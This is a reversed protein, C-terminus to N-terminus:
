LPIDDPNINENRKFPDENDYLAHINIYTNEYAHKIEPTLPEKPDPVVSYTVPKTDLRTVVIDYQCPDGWKKNRALSKIAKLISTQTINLIQVRKDQYNYVPLAWFHKPIDINGFRNIELEASPVPVGMRLRKPIRKDGVTTWYETGMIAKGESFTGLIRFRYEGPEDFKMYNSTVPIEYDDNSFFDSM